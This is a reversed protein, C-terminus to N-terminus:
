YSKNRAHIYDRSFFLAASVLKSGNNYEVELPAHDFFLTPYNPYIPHPRYFLHYLLIRSDYYIYEKSTFPLGLCTM